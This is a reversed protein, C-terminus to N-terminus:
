KSNKSDVDNEESPKMYGNSKLFNIALQKMASAELQTSCPHSVIMRLCNVAEYLKGTWYQAVERTRYDKM